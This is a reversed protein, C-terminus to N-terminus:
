FYTVQGPASPPAPPPSPETPPASNAASAAAAARLTARDPIRPKAGAASRGAGSRVSAARGPGLVRYLTFFAVLGISVIVSWHLVQNQADTGATLLHVTAFAYMAYSTFHVGKWLKKPLRDKLLSTIEIAVLLYFAVVGWAVANPKWTSAFPIFLEAWGYYVYTDAVLGTLHVAVFVVTLGGLFRHLDLLWPAKPKKGLARTSLALGWLVALAALAWAVLGSARAVYWWTQSSALVSSTM